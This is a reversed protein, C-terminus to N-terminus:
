ADLSGSFDKMFTDNTRIVWRKFATFNSAPRLQREIKLRAEAAEEPTNSAEYFSFLLDGFDRMEKVLRSRINSSELQKLLTTGNYVANLLEVTNATEPSEDQTEFSASEKPYPRIEYKIRTEVAHAQVTCNLINDFEAKALKTNNCHGCALFLNAWGFKLNIDGRHPIFHETNITPPEQYECIYCKNNFDAKLRELVDGCNYNGTALTREHVLCEPDPTSKPLYIM